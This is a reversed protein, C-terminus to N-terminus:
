IWDYWRTAKVYGDERAVELLSSISTPNCGTFDCLKNAWWAAYSPRELLEDIKRIRKDAAQDAIFALM